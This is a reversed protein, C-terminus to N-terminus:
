KSEIVSESEKSKQMYLYSNKLITQFCDEIFFASSLKLVKNNIGKIIEKEREGDQLSRGVKLKVDAMQVSLQFRKILLKILVADIKDFERRLIEVERM